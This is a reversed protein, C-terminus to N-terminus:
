GTPWGGAWNIVYTARPPAPQRSNAADTAATGSHLSRWPLPLSHKLRRRRCRGALRRVRDRLGRGWAIPRHPQPQVELRGASGFRFISGRQPKGPEILRNPAAPPRGLRNRPHRPAIQLPTLPGGATAAGGLTTGRGLGQGVGRGLDGAGIAQVQLQQLAGVTLERCPASIQRTWPERTAAFNM